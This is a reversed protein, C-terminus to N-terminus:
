HAALLRPSRYNVQLTLVMLATCYARGKKHGRMHPSNWSGALEGATQQLPLATQELTQQWEKWHPGDVQFMAYTGMFWRYPDLPLDSASWKSLDYLMLNTQQILAPLDKRRKGTHIQILLGAATATGKSVEQPNAKNSSDAPAAGKDLRSEPGILGTESNTHQDFSEQAELYLQHKVSLHVEEGAKLASVMWSTVQLDMGQDEGDACRWGKSPSHSRAIFNMARQAILKQFPNHSDSYCEALALAAIAHDLIYSRGIPQGILGTTPNQQAMLWYVGRKVTERYPGQRSSSGEGLFALLALGTVAIDNSATNPAGQQAPAKLPSNSEDAISKWSGDEAQNAQLWSLGERAAKNFALDTRTSISSVRTTRATVLNPYSKYNSSPYCGDVELWAEVQVPGPAPVTSQGSNSKGLTAGSFVAASLALWSLRQALGAPRPTFKHSNM